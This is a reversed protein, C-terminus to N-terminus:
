RALLRLVAWAASTRTVMAPQGPGRWSSGKSGCLTESSLFKGVTTLKKVIASRDVMEGEESESKLEDQLWPGAVLPQGDEM